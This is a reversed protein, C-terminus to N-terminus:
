DDLRAAKAICTVRISLSKVITGGTFAVGVWCGDEEALGLVVEDEGDEEVVVGCFAFAACAVDTAAKEVRMANTPM